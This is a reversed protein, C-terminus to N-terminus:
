QVFVPEPAVVPREEPLVFTGEFSVTVHTAKGRKFIVKSNQTVGNYTISVSTATEPVRTITIKGKVDTNGSLGTNEIVVLANKLPKVIANGSDSNITETASVSLRTHRIGRTGIYTAYIFKNVFGPETANFQLVLKLLVNKVVMDAQKFLVPLENNTINKRNRIAGEPKTLYNENYDKAANELTTIVAATIGFPLLVVGLGTATHAVLDANASIDTDRMRRLGSKTFKMKKFLENNKTTTAYAQVAGSVNLLLSALSEKKV